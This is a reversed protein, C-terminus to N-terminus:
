GQPPPESGGALAPGLPISKDPTSALAAAVEPPIRQRIRECLKKVGSRTRYWAIMLFSGLLIGCVSIVMFLLEITPNTFTAPTLSGIAAFATSLLFISFNLQLDAPTGRELEDLETDKIEYLDVSEVRGVRVLLKSEEASPSKPNM